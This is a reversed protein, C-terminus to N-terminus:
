TLARHEWMVSTKRALLAKLGLMPELLALKAGDDRGRREFEADVDSRDIQDHLKTRRARNRHRQLPDSSGTVPDARTGMAPQKRRRTVLQEFARRQDAGYTGPRHVCDRNRGRRQVNERLLDNRCTRTVLPVDRVQIRGNARRIRIALQRALIKVVHEVHEGVADRGRASAATREQMVITDVSPQAAPASGAHRGDGRAARNRVGCVVVHDGLRVLM